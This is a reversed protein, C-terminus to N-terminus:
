HASTLPMKRYREVRDALEPFDPDIEYPFGDWWGDREPDFRRPGPTSDLAVRKMDTEVQRACHIADIADIPELIQM